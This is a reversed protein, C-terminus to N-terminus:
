RYSRIQPLQRHTHTYLRLHFTKVDLTDGFGARSGEGARPEAGGPTAITKERSASHLDDRDAPGGILLRAVGGVLTARKVVRFDPLEHTADAVTVYGGELRHNFHIPG